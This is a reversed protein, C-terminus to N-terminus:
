NIVPELIDPEGESVAGDKIYVFNVGTIYGQPSTKLYSSTGDLNQNPGLATTNSDFAWHFYELVNDIGAGDEGYIGDGGKATSCSLLITFSRSSNWLLIFNELLDSSIKGEFEQTIIDESLGPLFILNEDDYKGLLKNLSTELEALQTSNLLSTIDAISVLGDVKMAGALDDKSLQSSASSIGQKSSLYVTDKTGHAMIIHASSKQGAGTTAEIVVDQYEASSSVNYVIVAYLEDRILSDIPNLPHQKEFVGNLDSQAITIICVPRKDNEVGEFYEKDLLSELQKKQEQYEQYKEPAINSNKLNKIILGYRNRLIERSNTFHKEFQYKKLFAILKKCTEQNISYDKKGLETNIANLVGVENKKLIAAFKDTIEARQDSMDTEFLGVSYLKSFMQSTFEDKFDSFNFANFPDFNLLDFAAVVHQYAKLHDDSVNFKSNAVLLAYLGINAHIAKVQFESNKKLDSHANFFTSPKNAICKLVFEENKRLEDPAQILMTPVFPILLEFFATNDPFMQILLGMNVYCLQAMEKTVKTKKGSYYKQFYVNLDDLTENIKEESFNSINTDTSKIALVTMFLASQVLKTDKLEASYTKLLNYSQGLLDNAVENKDTKKSWTDKDFYYDKLIDTIQKSENNTLDEIKNIGEALSKIQSFFEDTNLDSIQFGSYIEDFNYQQLLQLVNANSEKDLFEILKEAYDQYTKDNVTSDYGNISKTGMAELITETKTQDEIEPISEIDSSEEPVDPIEGEIKTKSGIKLGFKNKADPLPFPEGLSKGVNDANSTADETIVKGITSTPADDKDSLVVAVKDPAASIPTMPPIIENQTILDPPMPYEAFLQINVIKGEESKWAVHNSLQRIYGQIKEQTEPDLFADQVIACLPNEFYKQLVVNFEERLDNKIENSEVSIEPIESLYQLVSKIYVQLSDKLSNSVNDIESQIAEPYMTGKEKQQVLKGYQVLKFFLENCSKSILENLKTRKNDVNSPKIKPFQQRWNNHIESTGM